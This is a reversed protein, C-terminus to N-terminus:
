RLEQVANRSVVDCCLDIADGVPTDVNRGTIREIFRRTVDNRSMKQLSVTSVEAGGPLPERIFELELLHEYRRRLTDFVNAPFNSGKLVIKMWDQTKTDRNSIALVEEFSGTLQRMGRLQPVSIAEVNTSMSGASVNVMLVQKVHDRESFSFPIPGGSYHLLTNGPGAMRQAGHLHGLAIYDLDEFLAADAQGLGGVKFNRESDSPTAGSVFAHSVVLSRIPKKSKKSRADIDARVIGTAHSLVGTQSVQVDWQNEETGADIDPELFPIGYALLDFNDGSIIVPMSIDKLRTRFHINMRDLFRSNVGLRIRSDHNGSTILIPIGSAHIDSLTSEFLEVADTPPIARDYVDGAIVILDPKQDKIVEGTLWGLFKEHAPNLSEGDLRRGLHWDSTHLVRM